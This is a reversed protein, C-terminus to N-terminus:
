RIINNIFYLYFTFKFFILINKSQHLLEKMTNLPNISLTLGKNSSPSASASNSKSNNQSMNNKSSSSHTNDKNDHLPHEYSSSKEKSESKSKSNKVINRNSQPKNKIIGVKYSPWLRAGFRGVTTIPHIDKFLANIRKFLVNIEIIFKRIEGQKMLTPKKKKM